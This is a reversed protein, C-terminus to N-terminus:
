RRAGSARRRRPRGSAGWSPRGACRGRWRGRTRCWARRARRRTGFTTRGSLIMKATASPAARRRARRRAAARATAAWATAAGAGTRRSRGSGCRTSCTTACSPRTQRCTRRSCTGIIFLRQHRRTAERKDSHDGRLTCRRLTVAEDVPGARSLQQKLWSAYEDAEAEREEPAVERRILLEEDEEDAAGEAGAGSTKVSLARRLERQEDDYALQQRKRARARAGVAGDEEEEEEEEEDEDASGDLAAAGHTRLHDRMTVPAKASSSGAGDKEGGEGDSDGSSDEGEAGEGQDFFAAEPKYVEPRKQRVADIAKFIKLDLERTLMKGDEDESSADEESDLDGHLQRLQAMEQKRKRNEFRSAYSKNVTLQDGVRGIVGEEEGAADSADDSGDFLDM